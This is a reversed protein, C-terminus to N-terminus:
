DLRDIELRADQLFRTFVASSEPDLRSLGALLEHNIREIRDRVEQSLELAIIVARRDDPDPSRSVYGRAVLRDILATISASSLGLYRGLAKPRIASGRREEWLLYRLAILDNESVGLAAGTRAVLRQEAQRYERMARMLLSEPTPRVTDPYDTSM